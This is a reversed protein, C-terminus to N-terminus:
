LPVFGNESAIKQGDPGKCFEIFAKAGPKPDGLTDLYLKRALPYTKDKITQPNVEVGEIKVAKIDGRQTYSYGLYGIAKDSGTIAKYIEANSSSYTSVAPTEAKTSGFIDTLFSDRTGSGQERSIVYIAENPGGLEKWNTINGAYIEKVQDKTLSTVGADYVAKSVCVAIGDYGFLNEQFNNGYNTKEDSTVERSAMAIDSRGEAIDTIGAGTGGQGVSVQYESQNGNFAEACATGLPFVTTSGTVRVVTAAMSTGITGLMLSVLLLAILKRTNDGSALVDLYYTLNTSIFYIATIL